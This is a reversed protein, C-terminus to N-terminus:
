SSCTIQENGVSCLSCEAEFGPVFHAVRSNIGLINNYFRFLFERCRNGFFTRNWAGWVNKLIKNSPIPVDVLTFFTRVSNTSEIKLNNVKVNTLIRRFPKSGRQFTKLFFDISQTPLTEANRRSNKYFRLAGHIRMYTVLSLNLNFDQNVADLSKAAGRTFFDSFKLQSISCMTEFNLNLILKGVLFIKVYSGTIM